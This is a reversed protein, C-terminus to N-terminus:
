RSKDATFKSLARARLRSMSSFRLEEDGALRGVVVVVAVLEAPRDEIGTETMTETAADVATPAVVDVRLGVRRDGLTVLGTGPSRGIPGALLDELPDELRFGELHAVSV